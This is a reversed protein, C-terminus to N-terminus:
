HHYCFLVSEAQLDSCVYVLVFLTLWCLKAIRQMMTRRFWHAFSTQHIMYIPWYIEKITLRGSPPLHLKWPILSEQPGSVVLELVLWSLLYHVNWCARNNLSCSCLPIHMVMTDQTKQTCRLPLLLHCMACKKTNLGSMQKKVPVREAVETWGVDRNPRSYFNINEQM